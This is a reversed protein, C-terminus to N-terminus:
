QSSYKTIKFEKGIEELTDGRLLRVLYIAMSRAENAVGRRTM